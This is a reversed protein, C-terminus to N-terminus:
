IYGKPLKLGNVKLVLNFTSKNSVLKIMLKKLPNSIPKGQWNADTSNKVPNDNKIKELEEHMWREPTNGMHYAYNDVTSLRMYGLQENPIDIFKSEVGGQIKIFAPSQSGKDYVARRMTVVFHGCGLVAKTGNKNTMTVYRSLHDENYFNIDPGLSDDFRKLALPDAVPDFSVKNFLAYVWNNTTHYRLGKSTPVPAVMAAEPFERLLIETAQQWGHKFLVDADTISVLPEINGKVSALIANIKGMNVTSYFVQDIYPNSKQLETIYASVDPACGNNYITIRTKDHITNLLSEMCMKYIEFQHEFYGTHHPIYVPVIVRHYAEAKVENDFKVPNSGIRM